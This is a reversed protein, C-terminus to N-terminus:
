NIVKINILIIFGYIQVGGNLLMQCIELTGETLFKRNNMYTHATYTYACLINLSNKMKYLLQLMGFDDFDSFKTGM